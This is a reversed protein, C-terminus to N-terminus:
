HCGGCSACNGGCSASPEAIEPDEGNICLDIIGNMRNILQEFEAKAENYKLMTENCMIKGYLSRMQENCEKIKEDDKGEGSLASDLNMRIINFEGILTQLAEDKDNAEKAAAFKIYREDNQIAKGLERTIEIVDM